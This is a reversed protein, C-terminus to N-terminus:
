ITTRQTVRAVASVTLRTTIGNGAIELETRGWGVERETYVQGAYYRDAIKRAYSVGGAHSEAVALVDTSPSGGLTDYVTTRTISYLLSKAM